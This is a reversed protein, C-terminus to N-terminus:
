PGVIFKSTASSHSLYYSDNYGIVIWYITDGVAFRQDNVDIVNNIDLLDYPDDKCAYLNPTIASGSLIFHGTSNFLSPNYVQTSGAICISLYSEIYGDTLVPEEKFLLIAAYQFNNQDFTFDTEQSALGNVVAGNLPSYTAILQTDAFFAPKVLIDSDLKDRTPEISDEDVDFFGCSILSLSVFLIGVTKLFEM